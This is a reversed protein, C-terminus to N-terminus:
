GFTMRFNFLKHRYKGLETVSPLLYYYVVEAENM